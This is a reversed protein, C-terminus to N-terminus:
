ERAASAAILLQTYPHQPAALVSETLGSELVNGDKMVVVDHTMARVVDVDHTILLYAIGRKHQIRQLLDIVQKQISVDLASTPEDLVLVAPEVILARALAIRQRQGGSFEHPYRQLLRPYEQENLGVEELIALVRAQLDAPALGSQHVLLGEGVIDGVTMRPSLSSYPDQFVMQVQRRFALDAQKIERGQAFIRGQVVGPGLLQLVALALSSKGSGSEGIVGLTRGSALAFDMNQVAIFVDKAFWGAFGPKPKPYAVRLGQASLVPALALRQSQEAAADEPWPLRRPKSSLLRQTYPHSPASFVKQVPGQEVLHGKEMVLMHEAFHRVLNLDHTILLVAMGHKQCLGDILALIQQRLHVDLATTPEDAILLRPSSALAMAITARQRQGGSLQHAYAHAREAPNPIDVERLLDIAGQWAEKRSQLRKTQLVEAIQEGVTLVPNLASMPEQFVMAIADGRLAQWQSQSQGLLERGDFRVSGQTQANLNLGLAALATVTKGSGSEGVLAYKAGAPVAFSVGHVVKNAGFAIHLDRVELLAEKGGLAEPGPLAHSRSGQQQAEVGSSESGAGGAPALAKRPDLADRLADGMFTLLSLTLVLLGFTFLSIWWADINSKGQSLLEGLSPTGPPVGLGLFDLSTLSLIAGSMRFPLFTVVPTLSNPLIHRVIMKWDSVGLARASRVYDLQRNRLFEARVYDSMGMWGFLSLLILLLAVSPAFVASFIILLYLEPMASWIEICRQGLLDTKGGFYGQVAGTVVGLLVGTATLALAFLVSVRFGYILQALLDRGKDDTGLWNEASPGSPNPEKAFYNITKAGYPNPAFLAWNGPKAFQARIFPDHYDTPTDFDGGFVKEPYANLVPVYWQGEYKALLPRDNSVVEACLSLLVMLGFVLLSWYGLRNRRFRQWARRSPAVQARSETNSETNNVRM